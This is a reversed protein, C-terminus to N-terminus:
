PVAKPIVTSGKMLLDWLAEAAPPSLTEYKGNVFYVQLTRNTKLTATVIHDTNLILDDDEISILM